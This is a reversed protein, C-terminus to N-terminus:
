VKLWCGVRLRMSLDLGASVLERAVCDCRDTSGVLVGRQIQRDTQYVHTHQTVLGVRWHDLVSVTLESWNYFYSTSSDATDILFEGESYLELGRWSLSGEYGPAFGSVKGFIGGLMPSFEWELNEGGSFNYGLWASTAYLAEYNYRMELHLWDRDASLTPQLYNGADPPFYSYLSAALSWQGERLLSLNSTTQAAPVQSGCLLLLAGRASRRSSARKAGPPSKARICCSILAGPRSLTAPCVPFVPARPSRRLLSGAAM